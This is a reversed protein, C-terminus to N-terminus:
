RNGTKRKDSYIEALRTGDCNFETIIRRKESDEAEDESASAVEPVDDYHGTRLRLFQKVLNRVREQQQTLATRQIEEVYNQVQLSGLIQRQWLNFFHVRSRVYSIATAIYHDKNGQLNLYREIRKEDRWMEPRLHLAAAFNRIQKPLEADNPHVLQDPSRHAYNLVLDQYFYDDSFLSRMKAGVLTSGQTYQTPKEKSDVYKRLWQKFSTNEEEPKRKLYKEYSKPKKSEETPVTVKKTRSKLWSFKKSTLSLAMEPELPRLSRLHRYAAEYPGVHRSYMADGDFADHWKTVYSAAYKLLMGKGDTCQVDTRCKLAPTVTSIYARLNKEFAEKPHFLRLTERDRDLVVETGNDNEAISGKNSPQLKNVEYALNLDNWPIDARILNSKVEKLHKLWVLM